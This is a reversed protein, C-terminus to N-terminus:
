TTQEDQKDKLTDIFLSGAFSDIRTYHELLFDIADQLEVSANSKDRACQSADHIALTQLIGCAKQFNINSDM